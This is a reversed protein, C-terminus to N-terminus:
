RSFPIGAIPTGDPRELRLSDYLASGMQITTTFAVWTSADGQLALTQTAVVEAGELVSLQLAALEGFTYGNMDLVPAAEAASGPEVVVVDATLLPSGMDLSGGPQIEIQLRAPSTVVRARAVVPEILTLDVFRRGDETRPVFVRGVVRSEVLQDVMLSTTAETEVRLVGASRLIRATLTPPTTAPAGDDTVFHITVVHCGNDETWAIEGIRRGDAGPRDSHLLRGDNVMPEGTPCPPAPTPVTTSVPLTTSTSSTAVTVTTTAPGVTPPSSVQCAALLAILFLPALLKVDALTRGPGAGEYAPSTRTEMM